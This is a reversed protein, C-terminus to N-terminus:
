FKVRVVDRDRDEIKFYAEEKFGFISAFINKPFVQISNNYKLVIDNYFQRSYRIKEETDKLDGQLSIFNSNAKLEPYAEVVVMLKDLAEAMMNNANVTEEISKASIAANRAKVVEDFTSKEHAAYGKVTEVLNPILDARNKLQVDIQAWSNKVRNRLTVLGNYISIIYLLLIVVLFITVILGIKM